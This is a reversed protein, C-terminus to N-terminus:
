HSESEGNIVVTGRGDVAGNAFIYATADIMGSSDVNILSSVQIPNNLGGYNGLLNAGNSIYVEKILKSGTTNYMYVLTAPYVGASGTKNLDM